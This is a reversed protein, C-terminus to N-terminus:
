LSDDFDSPCQVWSSQKLGVVFQTNLVYYTCLVISQFMHLHKHYLEQVLERFHFATVNDAAFNLRGNRDKM